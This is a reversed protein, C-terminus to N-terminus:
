RPVFTSFATGLMSPITNVIGAMIIMSIGNGIGKNTIQDGLWLLFATGAALITAVKLYTMPTGTDGIFMISFLYGQLFAIIIGGYRNIKNIKRRGEEGQEKLEKFYPIIDLQLLQMVISMSIYPTVGLAFISFRKLAGGSISNYLDWLDLDAIASETGPVPITVGIAFILLGLLTFGIRRRIDKNKPSALLKLTKFM